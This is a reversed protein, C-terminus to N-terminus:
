KNARRSEGRTGKQSTLRPMPTVRMRSRVKQHTLWIPISGIQMATTFAPAIRFTWSGLSISDGDSSTESDTAATNGIARTAPKPFTRRLGDPGPEATLLSLVWDHGVM